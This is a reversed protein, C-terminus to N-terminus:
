ATNKQDKKYGYRSGGPCQVEDELSGSKWLEFLLTHAITYPSTSSSYHLSAKVLSLILGMVNFFFFIPQASFLAWNTLWTRVFFELLTYM